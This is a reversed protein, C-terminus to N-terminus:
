GWSAISLSLRAGYVTRYDGRVCLHGQLLDSAGHGRAPRRLAKEPVQALLEVEVRQGAMVKLRKVRRM